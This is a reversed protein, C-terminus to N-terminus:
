YVFIANFTLTRQTTTATNADKIFLPLSARDFRVDSRV